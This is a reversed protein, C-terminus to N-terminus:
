RDIKYLLLDDVGYYESTLGLSTMGLREAVKASRQNGADMIAYICDLDMQHFGYQLAAKSFETAYGLGWKTRKLHWGIEYDESFNKDADPLPKLLSAGIIEGTEKEVVAWHGSGEKAEAYQVLRKELAEQMAELDATPERHLFRVVEPDGFIELAEAADAEPVWKRVLLRESEFITDM